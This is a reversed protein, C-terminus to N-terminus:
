LIRPYPPPNSPYQTKLIIREFGARLEEPVKIGMKEVYDKVLQCTEGYYAHLAIEIANALSAKVGLGNLYAQILILAADCQSRSSAEESTVLTELEKTGEEQGLALKQRAIEIYGRMDGAFLARKHAIIFAIHSALDDTKKVVNMYARQLTLLDETSFKELVEEKFKATFSDRILEELSRNKGKELGLAFALAAKEEYGNIKLSGGLLRFDEATALSGSRKLWTLAVDLEGKAMFQHAIKHSLEEPLDEKAVNSELVEAALSPDSVQAAFLVAEGPPLHLDHEQLFHLGKEINAPLSRDGELYAYAELLAAQERMEFSPLGKEQMKQVLPLLASSEGKERHAKALLLLAKGDLDSLPQSSTLTNRYDKLLSLTATPDKQELAKEALEVKEAPTMDRYRLAEELSAAFSGEKEVHFFSAYSAPVLYVFLQERAAPLHAITQLLRIAEATKGAKMLLPATMLILAPDKLDEFGAGLYKAAENLDGQALFHYGVNLRTEPTDVRELTKIAEKIANAQDEQQFIKLIEDRLAKVKPHGESLNKADLGELVERLVKPNELHPGVLSKFEAIRNEKRIFAQAKEFAEHQRTAPFYEKLRAAENFDEETWASKELLKEVESIEKQPGWFKAIIDRFLAMFYSFGTLPKASFALDKQGAPIPTRQLIEEAVSSIRQESPSLTKGPVASSPEEGGPVLHISM